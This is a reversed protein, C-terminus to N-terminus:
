VNNEWEFSFRIAACVHFTSYNMIIVPNYYCKGFLTDINYFSM